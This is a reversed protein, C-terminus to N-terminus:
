TQGVSVTASVAAAPRQDRSIGTATTVVATVNAECAGHRSGHPQHSSMIAPRAKVSYQARGARRLMGGM